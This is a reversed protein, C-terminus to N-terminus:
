TAGCLICPTTEQKSLNCFLMFQRAAEISEDSAQLIEAASRQYQLYSLVASSSQVSGQERSGSIQLM